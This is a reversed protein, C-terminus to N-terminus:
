IVKKLKFKARISKGNRNVTVRIVRGERTQLMQTVQDLSLESPRKYNILMIQDGKKLGAKDAPSGKTIQSIAIIPLNPLPNWVEMGSMNYKFASKFNSNPKLILRKKQYDIFVKFRRLIEAGISGNRSRLMLTDRIATSDPFSVVPNKM